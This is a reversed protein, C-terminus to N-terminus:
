WQGRKKDLMVYHYSKWEMETIGLLRKFTSVEQNRLPESQLGEPSLLHDLAEIVDSDIEFHSFAQVHKREFQKAYATQYAQSQRVEQLLEPFIRQEAEELYLFPQVDIDPYRAEALDIVMGHDLFYDDYFQAQERGEVFIRYGWGHDEADNFHLVPIDQSLTLLLDVTSPQQLWDDELFLVSWRQNLTEVLSATSRSSIQEQLPKTYKSLFLNGTTFESM